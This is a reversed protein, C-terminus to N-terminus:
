LMVFPVLCNPLAACLQKVASFQLTIYHVASFYLTIYRLKDSMLGWYILLAPITRVLFCVMLGKKTVVHKSEMTAVYLVFFIWSMYYMSSFIFIGLQTASMDYSMAVGTFWVEFGAFYGFGNATLLALYLHIAEGPGTFMGFDVVRKCFADVHSLLFLIQLTQVMYWNITTDTIGMCLTFSMVLFPVSVNDCSHDFLEGLPSSNGTNRAHKGDIADLSMYIFVLCVGAFSCAHPMEEAYNFSLNFFYLICILGALSVINPAVTSPVFKVIFNWFPTYIKTTISHDVCAYKWQAINEREERTLFVNKLLASM